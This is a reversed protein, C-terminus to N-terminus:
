ARETMVAPILDETGASDARVRERDASGSTEEAERRADEATAATEETADTVITEEGRVRRTETRARDEEKM